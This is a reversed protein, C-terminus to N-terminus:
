AARVRSLFEGVATKLTESQKSLEEASSSVQSSASGVEQASRNVGEIKESVEHTGNAAGQVSRTIEQTTAGQEEMAAAVATSTEDLQDIVERIEQISHVVTNTGSQVADIQQNISETAKATQNALEKVESAVVAFGKGAEGARASEITANLALLNTQEAIESIMKVIEGIQDTTNALEAIKGDTASVVSVAHKSATSAQAVQENIEKISFSMEESAAAVTQVNASAEHSAQSVSSAQQSTGESIAEMSQSTNSLETAASSVAEIIRGINSDFEDALAAIAAAKERQLRAEAEAQQKELEAKKIADNKFTQVCKVMEGIENKDAVPLAVEHDGQALRTMASILTSFTTRITRLVTVTILSGMFFISLALFIMFNRSFEAKVKLDRIAGLLDKDLEDEFAKLKEIKRTLTEFWVEGTIGGLDEGKVSSLAVNRLDVVDRFEPSTLLEEFLAKQKYDAMNLFVTDYTNQITILSKLKDMAQPTFGGSSFAGSGVAREIGAREKSQLFSTYSEFKLLITANEALAGMEGILEFIQGNLETYYGLAKTLSVSQNDVQKRLANMQTLEELVLKLDKEFRAGFAASDFERLFTKLENRKENTRLRQDDLTKAFKEGKSALFGSTNGREKQQEHVLTSLEVALNTLHELKVMSRNQEIEQLVQLGSFLAMAVMPPISIVIILHSLKRRSLFRM